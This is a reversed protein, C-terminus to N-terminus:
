IVSASIASPWATSHRGSRAYGDAQAGMAWSCGQRFSGQEPFYLASRAPPFEKVYNGLVSPTPVVMHVTGLKIAKSCKLTAASCPTRSSRFRSLRRRIQREVYNKFETLAKYQYHQESIGTSVKITKSAAQVQGGALTMAAAFLLTHATKALFNMSEEAKHQNNPM